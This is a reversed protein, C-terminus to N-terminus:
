CGKQSTNIGNGAVMPLWTAYIFLLGDLFVTEITEWDQTAM